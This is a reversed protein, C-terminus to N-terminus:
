KYRDLIANVMEESLGSAEALDPLSVGEAHLRHMLDDRKERTRLLQQHANTTDVALEQLRNLDAM